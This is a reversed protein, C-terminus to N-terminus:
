SKGHSYKRATNISYRTHIRLILVQFLFVILAFPFSSKTKSLFTFVPSIQPQSYPLISALEFIYSSKTIISSDDYKLIGFVNKECMIVNRGWNIIMYEPFLWSSIKALSFHLYEHLPTMIDRDQYRSNGTSSFYLDRRLSPLIDIDQSCSTGTSSFYLDRRLSPLIDIDQSCSTGTSSFHLERRLFPM